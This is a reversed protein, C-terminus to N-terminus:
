KLKGGFFLREEEPNTEASQLNGVLRTRATIAGTSTRKTSFIFGYVLCSKKHAINEWKASFVTLPAFAAALILSPPFLFASCLFLFFFFFLFSHPPVFFALSCGVCCQMVASFGSLRVCARLTGGRALQVHHVCESEPLQATQLMTAAFVWGRQVRL